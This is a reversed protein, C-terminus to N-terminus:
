TEKQLDFSYQGIGEDDREWDYVVHNIAGSVPSLGEKECWENIEEYLRELFDTPELIETTETIDQPKSIETM